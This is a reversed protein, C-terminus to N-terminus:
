RPEFALSAMIRDLVAKALEYDDARDPNVGAVLTLADNGGRLLAVYQYARYDPDSRSNPNYEARHGDIGGVTVDDNLYVETLSTYGAQGEIVAITIWIEEPTGNPDTVEYFDPTFWSCAPTAGIETNTYWDDPFTVSYGDAPNTCTDPADFLADADPSDIVTFPLGEKAVYRTEGPAPSPSAQAAPPPGPERVVITAAPDDGGPLYVLELELNAERRAVGFVLWGETPTTFIDIAGPYLGLLPDLEAPGPGAEFRVPEVIFFHEANPDTPRLAWDPYGFQAPDPMRDAEYTIFLELIFLEPDLEIGPYGGRDHGREILITGWEGQADIAPIEVRDGPQTLGEASPQATSSPAPEITGTPSPTPTEEPPPGINLRQGVLVALAVVVALAVTTAMAPVFPAIWSRQAPAAEVVGIVSSVLDSPADVEGRSRLYEIIQEDSM